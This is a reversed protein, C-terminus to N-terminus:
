LDEILFLIFMVFLFCCFDDYEGEFCFIIVEYIENEYVVVVMGYEIGVYIMKFFFEM